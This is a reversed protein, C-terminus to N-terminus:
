DHIESPNRTTSRFSKMVDSGSVTALRIVWTEGLSQDKIRVDKKKGNGLSLLCYTARLCSPYEALEEIVERTSKPKGNARRLPLIPKKELIAIDQELLASWQSGPARGGAHKVTVNTQEGTLSEVDAGAFPLALGKVGDADVRIEVWNWDNSDLWRDKSDSSPGLAIDENGDWIEFHATTWETPTIPTGNKRHPDLDTHSQQIIRRLEDHRDCWQAAEDLAALWNEESMKFKKRGSDILDKDRPQVDGAVRWRNCGATERVVAWQAAEDNSPQKNWRVRWRTWKAQVINRRFVWSWAPEPGLDAAGCLIEWAHSLWIQKSNESRPKPTTM